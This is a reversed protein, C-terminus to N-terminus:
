DPWVKWPARGSSWLQELATRDHVNDMAHWFGDHRFASLQRVHVLRDMPEQEWVTTDGDILDFVGPECVFFGGNILGTDKKDKERFAVVNEGSEDLGLVGFRGTPAVATVTAMLGRRRHFAILSSLDVNSVGDGYTLLFPEDGIIQRAQKLRGGTMTNIGTDLVTVTWPEPQATLFTVEGTSLDVRLDSSKARYNVVWDRIFEVKYGGLIVFETLGHHACSKMIHWLIPRGGIEIMPKPRLHSEEGIRTGRGGALIVCKM